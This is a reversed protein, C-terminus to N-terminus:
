IDKEKLLRLCARRFIALDTNFNIMDFGKEILMETYEKTMTQATTTWLKVGHKKSIKIVKELVERMTPHTWDKGAIGLSLSLDWPGIFAIDIGKVTIIDEYNRIAEKSEILPIVWTMENAMKSSKEWPILDWQSGRTNPCSGRNGWPEYKAANVAMEADDRSDIHPIVVGECGINLARNIMNPENQTVRILPTIGSANAAAILPQISELSRPAIHTDFSIFDFGAFGAIETIEQSDSFQALGYAVRKEELAKRLRGIDKNM